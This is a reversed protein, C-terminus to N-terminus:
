SIPVKMERSLERTSRQLPDGKAPGVDGQIMLRKKKKENIM